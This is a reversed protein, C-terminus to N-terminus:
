RIRGSAHSVQGTGESDGDGSEKDSHRGLRVLGGGGGEGEGEGGAKESPPGIGPNPSCKENHFQQTKIDNSTNLHKPQGTIYKSDVTAQTGAWGLELDERTESQIFRLTHAKIVGYARLLIMAVIWLFIGLLIGALIAPIFMYLKYGVQFILHKNCVTRPLRYCRQGIPLPPEPFWFSLRSVKQHM